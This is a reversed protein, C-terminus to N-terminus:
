RTREAVCATSLACPQWGSAALGAAGLLATMREQSFLHIRVGHKRHYAAYLVGLWNRNPFLLALRGGPRLCHVFSQLATQPDPVFELSGICFVWDFGGRFGLHQMDQVCVRFGRRHCRSAMSRAGDIGVARAGVAALWALMEGDGCGADLVSAGPEVRAITQV